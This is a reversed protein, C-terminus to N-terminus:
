IVISGGLSRGLRDFVSRRFAQIHSSALREATETNRSIIAELIRAHESITAKIDDGGAESMCDRYWIWGIRMGLISLKQEYEIFFENHAANAIKHHFNLNSVSMEAPNVSLAAKSYKEHAISIAEIDKDTRRLCAWHQLARHTLELAEFFETLGLADLPAVHAGHNPAMVVLRDSSLRVLAERLPTRSVGLRKVLEAEDIKDGPLLEMRVILDRLTDYAFEAGKGRPPRTTSM